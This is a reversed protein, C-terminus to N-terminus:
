LCIAWLTRKEERPLMALWLEQNNLEKRNEFELVVRTSVYECLLIVSPSACLGLSSAPGQQQPGPAPCQNSVARQERQGLSLM